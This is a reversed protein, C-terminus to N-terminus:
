RYQLLQKYAASLDKHKGKHEWGFYSRKRVDAWGEGGDSKSIGREITYTSAPAAPDNIM